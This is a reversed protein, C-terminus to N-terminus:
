SRTSAKASRTASISASYLSIVLSWYGAHFILAAVVGAVAGIAHSLLGVWQMTYWNMSRVIIAWHQAGLASIALTPSIAITLLVVRSDKFILGMWPAAIWLLPMLALGFILGLWFLSSSIRQDLTKIQITATSLGLDSFIGVLNTIIVASAILGFDAPSLIRALLATAVFQLVIRIPQVGIALIGGIATKAGLAASHDEGALIDEVHHNRATM